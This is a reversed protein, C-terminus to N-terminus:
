DGLHDYNSSNDVNIMKVDERKTNTFENEKFKNKTKNM